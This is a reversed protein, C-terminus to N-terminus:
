RCALHYRNSIVAKPKFLIQFSGLLLHPEILVFHPGLIASIAMIRFAGEDCDSYHMTSDRLTTGM